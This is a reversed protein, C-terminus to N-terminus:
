NWIMWFLHMSNVILLKRIQPGVFMGEKVKAESLKPFKTKLYEFPPEDHQLAKVYQKMLGLKIHLPPLIIKEKSVLPERVVNHQGITPADRPPWQSRTYHEARARSDWKCLFCMYKTYGGQMGSLIAVVKLDAYIQWKHENYKICELIYTLNEYTEKLAVSHAVSVSPFVNGNHLLVAKISYLSGDIFLRWQDPEYNM